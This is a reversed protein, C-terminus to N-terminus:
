VVSGNRSMFIMSWYVLSFLGLFIQWRRCNICLTLLSSTEFTNSVRFVACPDCIHTLFAVPPLRNVPHLHPIRSSVSNVQSSKTGNNSHAQQHTAKRNRKCCEGKKGWVTCGGLICTPSMGICVVSLSCSSSVSRFASLSFWADCPATVLELTCFWWWWWWGVTRNTLVPGAKMYDGFFLCRTRLFGGYSGIRLCKVCEPSM